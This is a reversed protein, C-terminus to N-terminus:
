SAFRVTRREVIEGLSRRRNSIAGRTRVDGDSAIRLGSETEEAGVLISEEVISSWLVIVLARRIAM